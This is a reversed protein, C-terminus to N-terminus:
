THIVHTIGFQKIASRCIVCPAANLYQGSKGIRFIKLTHIPIGKAKIIADLEAHLYIKKPQGVSAAISAQLPHTKVYSNQGISIIKNKADYAIATISHKNM